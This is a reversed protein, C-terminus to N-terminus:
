KLKQIQIIIITKICGLLITKMQLFYILLFDAEDQTTITVLNGGLSNCVINASTWSKQEDSVYYFSGNLSGLFYFEDLYQCSGDDHIANINFSASGPDTCGFINNVYLIQSGLGYLSNLGTYDIIPNGDGQNFDWFGILGDYNTEHFDNIHLQFIENQNLPRNFTSFDDLYGIYKNTTGGFNWENNNNFNLDINSNCKTNIGDLYHCMEKSSSDYTISINHWKNDGVFEDTSFSDPGSATLFSTYFGTPSIDLIFYSGSGEFRLVQYLHNNSSPNDTKIRLNITFGDNGGIMTNPSNLNYSGDFSLSYDDQGFLALPVFLLIYLLKKM